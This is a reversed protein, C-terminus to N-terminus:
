CRPDSVVRNNRTADGNSGTANTANANAVLVDPMPPDPTTNPDLKGFCIALQKFINFSAVAWASHADNTGMAVKRIPIVAPCLRLYSDRVCSVGVEGKGDKVLERNVLLTTHNLGLGTELMDCIMREYVSKHPIHYTGLFQKGKRVGTYKMGESECVYTDKVISKILNLSLSPYVANIIGFTGGYGSWECPPPSSLAESYYRSILLRNVHQTLWVREGEIKDEELTPADTEVPLVEVTLARPQM